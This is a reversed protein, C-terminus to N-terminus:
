RRYPRMYVLILSVQQGNNSKISLLLKVKMKTTMGMTVLNYFSSVFVM